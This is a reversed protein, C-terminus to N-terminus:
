GAQQLTAPRQPNDGATKEHLSRIIEAHRERSLNYRSYIMLSIIAAFGMVPGATIGLRVLVEDELQSPVANFPLRVFFDLTM